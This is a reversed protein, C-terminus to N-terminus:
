PSMLLEFFILVGGLVGVVTGEVDTGVVVVFGALLTPVLVETGVVEVVGLVLVVGVAENKVRGAGAPLVVGVPTGKM